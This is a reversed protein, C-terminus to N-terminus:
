KRGTVYTEGPIETMTGKVTRTDERGYYGNKDFRTPENESRSVDIKKTEAM